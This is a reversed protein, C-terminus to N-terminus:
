VSCQLLVLPCLADLFHTKFSGPHLSQAAAVEGCIAYFHLGATLAEERKAEPMVALVAALVATLLCGSGTVGSMLAHGRACELPQSQAARIVLDTKGSIVVTSDPFRSALQYGAELAASTEELSDVGKTRHSVGALAMIESANGRILAFSFRELLALCSQTRYATAGAGVPDLIVPKQALNAEAAYRSALQMFSPNLTGLNIVVAQAIAVLDRAEEEALSMVPSAGLALLGNAIFDMTVQNTINVILPSQARLSRLLGTISENM